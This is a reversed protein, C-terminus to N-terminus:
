GNSEGEFLQVVETVCEGAEEAPVQGTKELWLRTPTKYTSLGQAVAWDSAGFRRAGLWEDSGPVAWSVPVAAGLTAVSM